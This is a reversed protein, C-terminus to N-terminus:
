RRRRRCHPCKFHEGYRSACSHCMPANTISDCYQCYPPEYPRDRCRACTRDLLFPEEEGDRGWFYKDPMDNIFAVRAQYREWSDRGIGYDARVRRLCEERSAACWIYCVDFGYENALSEIGRRQLKGPAFFAECVISDQWESIQEEIEEM